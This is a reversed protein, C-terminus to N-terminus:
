GVKTVTAVYTFGPQDDVGFFSSMTWHGPVAPIETYLPCGLFCLESDFPPGAHIGDTFLGTGGTFTSYYNDFVINPVFAPAFGDGVSWSLVHTKLHSTAQTAGAGQANHFQFTVEIEGTAIGTADDRVFTGTGWEGGLGQNGCISPSTCQGTFNAVLKETAASAPQAAVLMMMMMVASILVFLRV